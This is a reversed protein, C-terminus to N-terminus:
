PSFARQRPLSLQRRSRARPPPTRATSITPPTRVQPCISSITLPINGSNQFTFTQVASSKGVVINPFSLTSADATGIGGTVSFSQSVSTAALYNANGAQSAQITCTGVAVLTVTSGSVTCVSTTQSNFSV